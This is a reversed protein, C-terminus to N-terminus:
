IGTFQRLGVLPKRLAWYIFPARGSHIKAVGRAGIRPPTDEDLTAVTIYALGGEPTPEPFHTAHLVGGALAHLPDADLFLKVTAGSTLLEGDSVPAEMRIEVRAPDAIQLIREGTAVPRGIWDNPDSFIVVGDADAVLTAKKLNERAYALRSKALALESEMIRIERKTEADSFAAIATRELRAEAVAVEETMLTVENRTQTDVYTALVDGKKVKANPAVHIREIVGDMPAAVIQPETAVIEAPAMTSMSVPWLLGLVMLAGGGQVARKRVIPTNKTKKVPALARWACAYADCLRSLVRIESEVFPTARTLLIGGEAVPLWLADLFPYKLDTVGSDNSSPDLRFPTAADDDREAVHADLSAELWRLLPANRDASAQGSVTRAIQRVRGPQLAPSMYVAHGYPVLRRATNVAIHRLERRDKARLAQGELALLLELRSPTSPKRPPASASSAAEGDQKHVLKPTM